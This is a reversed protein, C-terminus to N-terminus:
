RGCYVTVADQLAQVSSYGLAKAAASIGGYQKSLFSITQGSCNPQSPVGTFGASLALKFVMGLGNAGGWYTVGYLNGSADAILGGYPVSGDSGTFSHLVTEAGSPTLKFVTGFGNAGGAETTSYLNGSADAILSAWPYGGDSGSFTHLLTETWSTGSPTLKFVTGLGNAGGYLTTGCLNGSADAILGAYPAHGDGASSGFSHLVTETWSTGSPTLKFVTGLGNTGGSFTTGYLNGSADALLSAYPYAGDGAFSGFAYLVTETWSTGSPTLKFVTGRGNTGGAETTGSLNGSTDALLSAYPYAGDGAFSRFSYLVTETWSTGSPTLRVVPGCCNAGGYQTTGYLNGNGDAILGARPRAGDGAFSGFAYLVTGTGSRAVKFVSGNGNAGGYQTTGYLNGNGDSILAPIPLAGDTGNFSYLTTLTQASARNWVGSAATAGLLMLLGTLRVGSWQTAAVGPRGSLAGPESTWKRSNVKDQSQMNM